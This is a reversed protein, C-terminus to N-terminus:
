SANALPLALEIAEPARPDGRTTAFGGHREAVVRAVIWRWRREPASAEVAKVTVVARDERVAITLTVSDKADAFGMATCVAALATELLRRDATVEADDGEVDVTLHHANAMAVIAGRLSVATPRARREGAYAALGDALMLARDVAADFDDVFPNVAGRQESVLERRGLFVALVAELEASVRQLLWQATEHPPGPLLRHVGVVRVAEGNADREVVRGRDLIWTWAGDKARLRVAVEYVESEGATHADLSRRAEALDDPHVLGGWFALTDEVDAPAYGLMSACRDSYRVKGRRLDLEWYGDGSVELATAATAHDSGVAPPAEAVRRTAFLLAAAVGVGVGSAWGIADVVTAGAGLVAVSGAGSACLLGVLGIRRPSGAGQTAIDAQSRSM